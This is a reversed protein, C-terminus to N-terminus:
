QAPSTPIPTSAVEIATDRVAARGIAYRDVKGGNNGAAAWIPASSAMHTDSACGAMPMFMAISALVAFARPGAFSYRPSRTFNPPIPNV